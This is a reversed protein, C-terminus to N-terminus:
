DDTVRASSPPILVHLANLVAPEAVIACFLANITEQREANTFQGDQNLHAHAYEDPYFWSVVAEVFQKPTPVGAVPLRVTETLSMHLHSAAHVVGRAAGPDYDLRIWPITQPLPPPVIPAQAAEIQM